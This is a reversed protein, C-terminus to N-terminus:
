KFYSLFAFLKGNYKWKDENKKGFVTWKKYRKKQNKVNNHNKEWWKTKTRQKGLLFFFLFCNWNLSYNCLLISVSTFSMGHLYITFHHIKCSFLWFIILTYPTTSVHFIHHQKNFLTVLVLDCLIKCIRM